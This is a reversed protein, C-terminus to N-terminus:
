ERRGEEKVRNKAAEYGDSYEGSAIVVCASMTKRTSRSGDKRLYGGKVFPLCTEEYPLKIRVPAGGGIRNREVELLAILEDITGTFM